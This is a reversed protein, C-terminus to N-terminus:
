PNTDNGPSDESNSFIDFPVDPIQITRLSNHHTVGVKGNM